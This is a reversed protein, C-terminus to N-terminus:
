RASEMPITSDTGGVRDFSVCIMRMSRLKLCGTRYGYGRNGTSSGLENAPCSPHTTNVWRLLSKGLAKRFRSELTSKWLRSPISCILTARVEKSFSLSLARPKPRIIPALAARRRPSTGRSSQPHCCRPSRLPVSGQVPNCSCKEAARM